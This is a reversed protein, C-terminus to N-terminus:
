VIDRASDLGNITGNIDRIHGQATLPPATKNQNHVCIRESNKRQYEYMQVYVCACQRATHLWLEFHPFKNGLICFTNCIFQITHQGNWDEDWRTVVGSQSTIVFQTLKHLSSSRYVFKTSQAWHVSLQVSLQVSCHCQLIRTGLKCTVRGHQMCAKQGSMLVQFEALSTHTYYSCKAWACM